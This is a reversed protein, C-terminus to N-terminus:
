RFVYEFQTIRKIQNENAVREKVFGESDITYHYESSLTGMRPGQCGDIVTKLLNKNRRGDFDGLFSFIDIKSESDIYEYDISCMGNVRMSITNGDETVYGFYAYSTYTITDSHIESIARETYNKYGDSYQNLDTYIYRLESGYYTSDIMTHALGMSNLFYYSKMSYEGETNSTFVEVLNDYYTFSITNVLSNSVYYYVANIKLSDSLEIIFKDTIIADYEKDKSCGSLIYGLFIPVLIISISKM